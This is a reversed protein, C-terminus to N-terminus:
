RTFHIILYRIDKDLCIVVFLYLISIVILLLDNDITFSFITCLFFILHYIFIKKWKINLLNKDKIGYIRVLCVILFSCCNAVAPGYYGFRFILLMTLAINIVAGYVTSKLVSLTDKFATYITELVISISAYIVALVLLYTLKWGVYYNNGILLEYVFRINMVILTGVIFLFCVIKDFVNTIFINGDKKKYEEIVSMQWSQSFIQLVLNIFNPMKNAMAYIGNASAGIIGIIFLRDSSSNLWWSFYNPILPLSYRLVEYLIKRDFYRLKIEKVVKTSILIFCIGGILGMSYSLLYGKIGSKFYVLFLVNCVGMIFTNVIGATAFIRVKGEARIYNSILAFFINSVLFFYVYFVYYGKFKKDLFYIFPLILILIAVIVFFASSVLKKSYENDKGELAFRFVGDYLELGIVPTLLFVLQTVLDARGFESATLTYSYLPILIFQILKSGLNGIAFIITNGILKKYKNNM